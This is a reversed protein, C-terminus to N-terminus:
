QTFSTEYAEIVTDLITNNLEKDDIRVLSYYKGNNSRESPMAVFLGNGGDILKVSDIMISGLWLRVFALVKGELRAVIEAKVHM